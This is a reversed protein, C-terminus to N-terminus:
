CIISILLKFMVKNGNENLKSEKIGPGVFWEYQFETKEKQEFEVSDDSESSSPHYSADRADDESPADNGEGSADKHAEDIDSEDFKM